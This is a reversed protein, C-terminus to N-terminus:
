NVTAIVEFEVSDPIANDTRLIKGAVKATVRTVKPTSVGNRWWRVISVEPVVPKNDKDKM